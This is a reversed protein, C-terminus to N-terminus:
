YRYEWAMKAVAARDAKRAAPSLDPALRALIRAAEAGEPLLDILLQVLPAVVEGRALAADIM